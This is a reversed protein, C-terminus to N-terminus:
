EGRKGSKASDGASPMGLQKLLAAVNDPTVTISGIQQLKKALELVAQAMVREPPMERYIGMREREAEVKAEAVLKIGSAQAKSALEHRAAEGEAAIRAAAAEDAARRRDNAGRQEILQEERRALEIKNQLENEQIAREKEVAQARRKFTAEDATQQISERVPIRLAKELEPSPTV